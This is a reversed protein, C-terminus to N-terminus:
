VEKKDRQAQGGERRATRSRRREKKTMHPRGRRPHDTYRVVSVRKGCLKCVGERGYRPNYKLTAPDAEHQCKALNM